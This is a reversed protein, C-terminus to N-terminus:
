DSFPLAIGVITPSMLDSETPIVFYCVDGDVVSLARSFEAAELQKLTHDFL